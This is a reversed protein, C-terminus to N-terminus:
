CRAAVCQYYEGNMGGKSNGNGLMVVQSGNNNKNTNLDFNKVNVSKNVEGRSQNVYVSNTKGNSVATVSGNAQNGSQHVDIENGANKISKHVSGKVSSNITSNQISIVNTEESSDFANVSTTFVM